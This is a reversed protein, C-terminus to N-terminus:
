ATAGPSGTIRVVAEGEIAVGHSTEARTTLRVVGRRRNVSTIEVTATVPEGIYVPKLFKLLQGAYVSGPGPLQTGLIQTFLTAALLGHVTPRGFATQQAYEPDVHLPNPDGSLAAYTRVDEHTFVRTSSAKQGVSFYSILAPRLEGSHRPSMDLQRHRWMLINHEPYLDREATDLIM